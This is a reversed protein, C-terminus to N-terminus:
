MYIQLDKVLVSPTGTGAKMALAVGVMTFPSRQTEPTASTMPYTWDIEFGSSYTPPPFTPGWLSSSGAGADCDIETMLWFEGATSDDYGYLDKVEVFPAGTAVQPGAGANLHITPPDGGIVQHTAGVHTANVDDLANPRMSGDIRAVLTAAWVDTPETPTVGLPLSYHAAMAFHRWAPPVPSIGVMVVVKPTAATLKTIRLGLGDPGIYQLSGRAPYADQGVESSSGCVLSVGDVNVSPTPSGPTFHIAYHMKPNPGLKATIRHNIPLPLEHHTPLM